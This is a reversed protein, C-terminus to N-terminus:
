VFLNVKRFLHKFEKETLCEEVEVYLKKLGTEISKVLRLHEEGSIGYFCERFVPLPQLFIKVSFEADRVLEKKYQNQNGLLWQWIYLTKGKEM